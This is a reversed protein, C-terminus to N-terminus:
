NRTELYNYDLKFVFQAVNITVNYREIKSYELRSRIVKREMM